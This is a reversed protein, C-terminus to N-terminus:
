LILLLPMHLGWLPIFHFCLYIFINNFCYNYYAIMITHTRTHIYEPIYEVQLKIIEKEVIIPKEVEVVEQEVVILPLTNRQYMIGSFFGLGLVTLYGIIIIVLTGKM